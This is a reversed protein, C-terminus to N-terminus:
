GRTDALIDAATHGALMHTRLQDEITRRTYGALDAEDGFYTIDSRFPESRAFRELLAKRLEDIEGVTYARETM